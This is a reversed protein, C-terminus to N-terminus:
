LWRSAGGVQGYTIVSWRALIVVAILIASVGDVWRCPGAGGLLCLM